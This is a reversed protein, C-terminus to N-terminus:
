PGSSADTDAGAGSSARVFKQRSGNAGNGKARAAIVAPPPADDPEGTAPETETAGVAPAPESATDAVPAEETKAAVKVGAAELNAILGSAARLDTIAKGLVGMGTQSLRAGIDRVDKECLAMLRLATAETIQLTIM